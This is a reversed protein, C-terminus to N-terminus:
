LMHCFFHLATGFNALKLVLQVKIRGENKLPMHSIHFLLKLSLAKVLNECFTVTFKVVYQVGVLSMFIFFPHIWPVLFLGLIIFSLVYHTKYWCKQSCLRHFINITLIAHYCQYEWGTYHIPIAQPRSTHSSIIPPPSLKTHPTNNIQDHVVVVGSDWDFVPHTSKIHCWGVSCDALITM